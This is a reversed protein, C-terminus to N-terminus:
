QLQLIGNVTDLSVTFTNGATINQTSGSDWWGILTHGAPVGAQANYLVVYQFPAIAGGSATFSPNSGTPLLKYIGGTQASTVSGVLAGGAAYGNGPTIDAITTSAATPVASTLMVKLADSGLNHTKNAIDAVFTNFKNFAAM